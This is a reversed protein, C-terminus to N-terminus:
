STTQNAVALLDPTKHLYIIYIHEINQKAIIKNEVYIYM